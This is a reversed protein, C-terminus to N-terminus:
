NRYVALLAAVSVGPDAGPDPGRPSGSGRSGARSRPRGCLSNGSALSYHAWRTKPNETASNLPRLAQSHSIPLPDIEVHEVDATLHRPPRM